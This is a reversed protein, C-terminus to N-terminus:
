ETFVTVETWFLKRFNHTEVMRISLLPCALPVCQSWATIYGDNTYSNLFGIM